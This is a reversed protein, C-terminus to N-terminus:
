IIETYYYHTSCSFYWRHICFDAKGANWIWSTYRRAGVSAGSSVGLLDPSVLPNKFAGQYVAGSISLMAGVFVSAIIRPLRVYFIINEMSMDIQPILGLRGRIANIADVPNNSYRGISLSYSSYMGFYMCLLIRQRNSFTKM